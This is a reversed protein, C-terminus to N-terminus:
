TVEAHQRRYGDSDKQQLEAELAALRKRLQDARAPDSEREMQRKLQEIEEKLEKIERDVKDTNYTATEAKAAPGEPQASEKAAPVGPQAGEGPSDFRIVPNGAEDRDPWYQGSPVRPEGPVYRDVDPERKQPVADTGQIEKEIERVQGIERVGIGPSQVPSALPQIM